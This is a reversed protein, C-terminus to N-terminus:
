VAVETVTCQISMSSTTKAGLIYVTLVGSNNGVTLGTVGDSILSSMQAPTLQIDVKSNATVTAGTVTVVQTYPGEGTWTTGLSISGVKISRGFEQWISGNFIFEVNNYSTIDGSEATVSTGNITIPNTSSGDTLATTTVGIWDKASVLAQIKTNLMELLIEIRSEPSIGSSEGAITSALIEEVRSLLISM